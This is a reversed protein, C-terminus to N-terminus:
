AGPAGDVYFWEGAERVFRSIEHVTARGEADRYHAVFEVYGEDDFPGGREAAVVDLRRWRVDDSLDIEPPRTDPHWSRLLHAAGDPGGVVFASYRSRMLAEATPARREGAHVPGCCAGYTEGSLCPCRDASNM